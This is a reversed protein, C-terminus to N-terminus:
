SPAMARSFLCPLWEWVWLMESVLRHYCNASIFAVRRDPTDEQVDTEPLVWAAFQLIDGVMQQWTWHRYPGDQRQAFANRDGYCDRNNLLMTGINPTIEGLSLRSKLGQM